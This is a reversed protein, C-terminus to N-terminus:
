SILLDLSYVSLLNLVTELSIWSMLCCLVASIGFNLKLTPANCALVLTLTVLGCM